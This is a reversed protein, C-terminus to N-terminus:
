PVNGAQCSPPGGSRPAACVQQPDCDTVQDCTGGSRVCEKRGDQWLGVCTFGGAADCDSNTRCLGYDGCSAATPAAVMECVPASGGCDANTCGAGSADLEGVCEKTGDNDNDVDACASGLLSCDLEPLRCTRFSSVCFSSTSANQVTYCVHNKPCDAPRDCPVRRDVCAESECSFGPPCDYDENDATCGSTKRVCRSSSGVPKCEYNADPCDGSGAGVCSIYRAPQCEKQPEGDLTCGTPVCVLGPLFSCDSDASCTSTPCTQCLANTVCGGASGGRGGGGSNGGTGVTGGSGVTGGTGAMGGTGVMGGMGAMGGTGATGSMGATGGVGGMGGAGGSGGMGTFPPVVRVSGADGCSVALGLWVFLWAYKGASPRKKCTTRTVQETHKMTPIRDSLQACRRRTPLRLGAARSLRQLEWLNRREQRMRQTWRALPWRLQLWGRLRQRRPLARVTRM